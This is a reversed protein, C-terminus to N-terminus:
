FPPGIRGQLRAALKRQVWVLLWGLAAGGILGPWILLAFGFEWWGSM